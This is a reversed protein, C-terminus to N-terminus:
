QQEGLCKQGNGVEFDAQMELIKARDALLQAQSINPYKQM